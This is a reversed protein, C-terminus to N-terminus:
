KSGFALLFLYGSQRVLNFGTIEAPHVINVAVKSQVVLPGKDLNTSFLKSMINVRPALVLFNTVEQITNSVADEIGTLVGDNTVRIAKPRVKGLARKMDRIKKLGSGYPVRPLVRINRLNATVTVAAVPIALSPAITGWM